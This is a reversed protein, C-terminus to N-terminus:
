VQPVAGSPQPPVILQPVQVPPLVHLPVVQMQGGATQAGPCVQPVAVLAHPFVVGQPIVHGLPVVHLPVVHAQGGATQAGPCVQPEALLLQPLVVVQPM